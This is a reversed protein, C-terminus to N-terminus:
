WVSDYQDDGDEGDDDNHGDENKDVSSMVAITMATVVATRKAMVM